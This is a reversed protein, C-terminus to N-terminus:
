QQPAIAPPPEDVSVMETLGLRTITEDESDDLIDSIESRLGSIQNEQLAPPADPWISNDIQKIPTDSFGNPSAVAQRALLVKMTHADIVAVVYNAFVRTTTLGYTTQCFLGIGTVPINTMAFGQNLKVMVIYLDIDQSASLGPLDPALKAKDDWIHANKFAMRDVSINRIAYRGALMAQARQEM